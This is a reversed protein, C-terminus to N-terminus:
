PAAPTGQELLTAVLNKWAIIDSDESDYLTFGTHYGHGNEVPHSWRVEGVLHFRYAPAERSEIHLQFIAEAPLADNLCILLGNASVDLTNCLVVRPPRLDAPASSYTEIMVTFNGQLRVESRHDTKNHM